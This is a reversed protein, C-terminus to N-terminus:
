GDTRAGRDKTWTVRVGRGVVFGSLGCTPEFVFEIDGTEIAHTLYPQRDARITPRRLLLGFLINEGFLDLNADVVKDIEFTVLLRGADFITPYPTALRILSKGIRSLSVDEAVADHFTPLHEYQALLSASGPLSALIESHVSYDRGPKEENDHDV